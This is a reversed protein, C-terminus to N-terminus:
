ILPLRINQSFMVPAFFWIFLLRLAVKRLEQVFMNPFSYNLCATICPTDDDDEHGLFCFPDGEEVQPHLRQKKVSYHHIRGHKRMSDYNQFVYDNRHSDRRCSLCVYINPQSCKACLYEIAFTHKGHKRGTPRMVGLSCSPRPCLISEMGTFPNPLFTTFALSLAATATHPIVAVHQSEM